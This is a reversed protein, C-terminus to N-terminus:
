AGVDHGTRLLVRNLAGAVGNVTAIARSYRMRTPGLIGVTGARHGERYTTAVLSFSQLGPATHEAGIVIVLGPGEIYENLLQILRGKEEILELVARMAGRPLQDDVEEVSDLLSSAGQVYLPHREAIETFTSHALRLARTLLTDYLVRAETLQRQIAMRVEGLPLGSFEKNLYNAARQLEDLQLRVGLEVAKQSVEGDTSVVVVLVKTAGIPVFQIQEFSTDTTAQAFAFGLYHSARSLELSVNELVDGVTDARLSLRAELTRRSRVPRRGELLLDVYCRYGRDTPVRGASTHPQYLYGWQELKALLNRVTASSVRLNVHRTLWLSSIPEGRAIYEQVVISLIERYRDTLEGTNHM